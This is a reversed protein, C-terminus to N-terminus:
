KKKVGNGYYYLNGLSYEGFFNKSNASLEFWKFSKEYNQNIIYGKEYLIGLGNQGIPLNKLIFFKDKLIELLKYCKWFFCIEIIEYLEETILDNNEVFNLFFQFYKSEFNDKIEIKEIYTPYYDQFLLSTNYFLKYNFLFKNNNHLIELNSNM